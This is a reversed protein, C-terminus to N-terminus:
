SGEDGGQLMCRCAGMLGMTSALMVHMRPSLQVWVGLCGCPKELYFLGFWVGAVSVGVTVLCLPYVMRRVLFLIGVILEGAALACYSAPGLMFAPHHRSVFKAVSFLLLAVGLVVELCRMVRYRVM